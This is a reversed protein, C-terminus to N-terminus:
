RLRGTRNGAAESRWGSEPLLAPPSRKSALYRLLDVLNKANRLNALDPGAVVLIEDASVLIRKTWARGNTRFM